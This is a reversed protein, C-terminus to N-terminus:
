SGAKLWAKDKVMASVWGPRDTVPMAQIFRALMPAATGSADALIVAGRMDGRPKSWDPSKRIERLVAEMLLAHESADVKAVATAAAKSAMTPVVLLIKLAEQAAPSLSTVSVRVATTERALYVAARLDLKGLQPELTLWDKLFVAHPQMSTPCAEKIADLDGDLGELKALLAAKGSSAQLIDGHLAEVAMSDTCREFLVLKAIVSEDLPMGRKKAVTTRMRVVNLLRKITRPNGRVRTSLALLPALADAQELGSRFPDNKDLGLSALAQDVSFGPTDSWSQRLRGVLFQRLAELKDKPQKASSAMLMFLYARVELVGVQPVRVPVQILKDLYDTVLRESHNNFHEAVAHRVMDEDAAIVFATKPLFLFLRIAELTHIANRPLCRDLNDIFVVLTKSIGQLVEKFETRFATIEEPPGEQPNLLAAGREQVDKAAAKAAEVDEADGTGRVIDGLAGVGRQLVGFTPVGLALASGELALGLLRLKSVRGFLKTAKERLPAPAEKLLAKTIVAMLAARADDFDQYLWADFEVILYKGADRELEAKVLKLTSSKGTGWTGFVGLSLPLMDPQQIMEAVLEAVESYNLYDTDTEADAWM